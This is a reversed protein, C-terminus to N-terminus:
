ERPKQIKCTESMTDEATRTVESISANTRRMRSAPPCGESEDSETKGRQTTAHKSEANRKTLKQSTITLTRVSPMQCVIREGQFMSSINQKVEAVSRRTNLKALM